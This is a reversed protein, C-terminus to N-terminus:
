IYYTTSLFKYKFCKLSSSGRNCLKYVRMGGDECPITESITALVSTQLYLLLSHYIYSQISKIFQIYNKKKSMVAKTSGSFNSVYNISKIQKQSVHTHPFVFLPSVLSQMANSTCMSACISAYTLVSHASQIILLHALIIFIFIYKQSSWLLYTFIVTVLNM